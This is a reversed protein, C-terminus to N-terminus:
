EAKRTEIVETQLSGASARAADCLAVAFAADDFTALTGAEGGSTVALFAGFQARMMADREQANEEIEIAAGHLAIRVTQAVADWELEGQDGFATMRRRTARTLYDLRLSMALGSPDHWLLDAAEEAAIGLSGPSAFSCFVRDPRGFIWTAYDIEHVLDRLVGGDEARASYARRYDSGPRWEPLYSQCEIRVAHVRGVKPILERFRLLGVHFRLNQAVFVQRRTTRMAAAVREISSAHACLPKEVLVDLGAELARCVDIDHRATDTAIIALKAGMRVGDDISSATRWGDAALEPARQERVPVAIPVVDPMGRLVALHRLGISGTGHVIVSRNM